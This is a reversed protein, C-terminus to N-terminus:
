IISKKLVSSKDEEAEVISTKKLIFVQLLLDYQTIISFIIYINKTGYKLDKRKTKRGM